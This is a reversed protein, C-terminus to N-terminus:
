DGKSNNNFFVETKIKDIVEQTVKEGPHNKRFTEIRREMEALKENYAINEEAEPLVKYLYSKYFQSASYLGAGAAMWAFYITVYDRLGFGYTYWYWLCFFVPVPFFIWQRYQAIVVGIYYFAIGFLLFYNGTKVATLPIFVLPILLYIIFISLTKFKM